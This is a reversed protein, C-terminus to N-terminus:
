ERSLIVRSMWFLRFHIRVDNWQNLGDRAERETPAYDDCAGGGPVPGNTVAAGNWPDITSAVLDAPNIM